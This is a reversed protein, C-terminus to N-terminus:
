FDIWDNDIEFHKYPYVHSHKYGTEHWTDWYCKATEATIEGQMVWSFFGDDNWVQEVFFIFM